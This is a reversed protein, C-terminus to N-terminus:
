NNDDIITRVAKGIEYFLGPYAHAKRGSKADLILVFDIDEYQTINFESLFYEYDTKNVLLNYMSDVEFHVSTLLPYDTHTRKYSTPINPILSPYITDYIDDRVFKIKEAIVNGELNINDIFQQSMLKPMYATVYARKVIQEFYSQGEITIYEEKFGGFQLYSVLINHSICDERFNRSVIEEETQVNNPQQESLITNLAQQFSM